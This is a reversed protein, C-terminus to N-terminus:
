RRRAARRPSRRREGVIRAAAEDAADDLRAMALTAEQPSMVVGIFVARTEHQVARVVSELDTANTLTAVNVLLTGDTTLAFPAGVM